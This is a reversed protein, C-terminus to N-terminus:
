IYGHLVMFFWVSGYLVMCFWVSGYVTSEYVTSGYIYATSQLTLTMCFLVYGYLVM